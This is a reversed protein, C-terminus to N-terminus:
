RVFGAQGPVTVGRSKGAAKPSDRRLARVRSGWRLSLARASFNRAECLSAAAKGESVSSM